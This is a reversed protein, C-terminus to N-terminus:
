HCFVNGSMAAVFGLLPTTRAALAPKIVLCIGLSSALLLLHEIHVQPQADVPAVFDAAIAPM